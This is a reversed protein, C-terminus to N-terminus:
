AVAVRKGGGGVYVCVCVCVPYLEQEGRLDIHHEFVLASFYKIECTRHQTRTKGERM